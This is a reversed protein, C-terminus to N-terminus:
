YKKISGIKCSIKLIEVAVMATDMAVLFDLGVPIKKTSCKTRKKIVQTWNKCFITSIQMAVMGTSKAISFDLGRPLLNSSM